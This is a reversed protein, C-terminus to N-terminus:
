GNSIKTWWAAFTSKPYEAFAKEALEEMAAQFTEAQVELKWGNLEDGLRVHWASDFFWWDIAGNIESDHLRQVIEDADPKADM